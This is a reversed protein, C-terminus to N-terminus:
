GWGRGIGTSVSQFETTVNCRPFTTNSATRIYKSFSSKVVFALADERERMRVSELELINQSGNGVVGGEVSKDLMAFTEKLKGLGQVDFVTRQQGNPHKELKKSFQARTLRGGGTTVPSPEGISSAEETADMESLLSRRRAPTYATELQISNRIADKRNQDLDQLMGVAGDLIEVLDDATETGTAFPSRNADGLTTHTRHTRNYHAGRTALVAQQILLQYHQDMLNQFEDMQEATVITRSARAADRLPTNPSPGDQQEGNTSATSKSIKSTDTKHSDTANATVPAAPTDEGDPKKKAHDLLTAVAAEMDEEELGGLEEELERYFNPDWELLDLAIASSATTLKTTQTQTHHVTTSPGGRGGSDDNGGGGDDDDDDESDNEMADILYEEEDDDDRLKWDDDLGLSKVFRAYDDLDGEADSLTDPSTAPLSEAVAVAVSEAGAPRPFSEATSRTHADVFPAPEVVLPPVHPRGRGKTPFVAYATAGVAALGAVGAAVGAAPPPPVAAPRRTWSIASTTGVANSAAAAAAASANKKKGGQRTSGSLAYARAAAKMAPDDATCPPPPPPKETADTGM